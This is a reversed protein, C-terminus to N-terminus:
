SADGDDNGDSGDASYEDLLEKCASFVAAATPEPLTQCAGRPHYPDDNPDVVEIVLDVHSSSKHTVDLWLKVDCDDHKWVLLQDDLAVYWGRYDPLDRVEAILRKNATKIEEQPVPARDALIAARMEAVSYTGDLVLALWGETPHNDHHECWDSVQDFDPSDDAHSM